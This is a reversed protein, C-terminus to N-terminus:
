VSMAYFAATTGSCLGPDRSLESDQLRFDCEKKSERRSKQRWGFESTTQQKTLRRPSPPNLLCSFSDEDAPPNQLAYTSFLTKRLLKGTLGQTLHHAEVM